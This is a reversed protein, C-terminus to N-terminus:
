KFNVLIELVGNRIESKISKKNLEHKLQVQKRYKHDGYEGQFSLDRGNIEIEIEEIGPVEAVIQYYGEHENEHIETYPEAYESKSGHSFIPTGELNSPLSASMKELWEPPIDDIPTFNVGDPGFSAQFGRVSSKDHEDDTDFQNRMMRAFEEQMMRFLKNLDFNSWDDDKHNM